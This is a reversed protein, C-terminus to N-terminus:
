PKPTIQKFRQAAQHIEVSKLIPTLEASAVKFQCLADTLKERDPQIGLTTMYGVLTALHDGARKVNQILEFHEDLTTM